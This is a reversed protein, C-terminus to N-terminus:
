SPATTVFINTRFAVDFMNEMTSHPSHNNKTIIEVKWIMQEFDAYLLLYECNEMTQNNSIVVIHNYIQIFFTEAVEQCAIYQQVVISCSSDQQM